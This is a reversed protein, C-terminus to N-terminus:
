QHVIWEEVNAYPPSSTTIEYISSGLAHIEARITAKENKDDNPHKFGSEAWVTCPEDDIASGAFDCLLVTRSSNL